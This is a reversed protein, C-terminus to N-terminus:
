DVTVNRETFPDCHIHESRAGQLYLRKRLGHVFDPAGCLFVRSERLDLASQDEQLAQEIRCHRYPENAAAHEFVCAVYTFNAHQATLTRLEQVLYLQDVSRGGHYLRIPAKHGQTLADRVIGYLPALGTGTGAMLLPQGADERPDYHCSGHPGSLYLTDGIRAENFLWGSWEGHSTRSVHLELEGEAAFDNAISYARVCGHPNTASLYQGPRYAFMGRPDAIKLRVRCVHPNLATLSAITSEIAFDALRPPEARVDGEPVWQCALTYGKAQLAPKIWKRSETTADCDVARVLCAQCMGAKCAYPLPEGHRLLCDLVSEYPRLDLDRDHYTLKSM